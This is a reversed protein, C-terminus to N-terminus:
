KTAVYMHVRYANYISRTHTHTKEVPSGICVSRAVCVHVSVIRVTLSLSLPNLSVSIEVAAVEPVALCVSLPAFLFLIHM